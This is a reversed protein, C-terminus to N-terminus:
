TLVPKEQSNVTEQCHSLFSLAESCDESELTTSRMNDNGIWVNYHMTWEQDGFKNKMQILVMLM